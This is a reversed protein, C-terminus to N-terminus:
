FCYNLIYLTLIIFEVNIYQLIGNYWKMIILMGHSFVGIQDALEPYRRDSTLYEDIDKGANELIEPSVAARDGPMRTTAVPM